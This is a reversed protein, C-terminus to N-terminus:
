SHGLQKYSTDYRGEHKVSQSAMLGPFASNVSSSGITRTAPQSATVGVWRCKFVFLLFNGRRLSPPPTSSYGSKLSPINFTALYQTPSHPTTFSYLGKPARPPISYWSM